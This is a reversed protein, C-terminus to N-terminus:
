GKTIQNIAAKRQKENLNFDRIYNSQRIDKSNGFRNDMQKETLIKLEQMKSISWKRFPSMGNPWHIGLRKASVKVRKRAGHIPVNFVRKFTRREMKNIDPNNFTVNRHTVPFMQAKMWIGFLDLCQDSVEVFRRQTKVQYPRFNNEENISHDLFM